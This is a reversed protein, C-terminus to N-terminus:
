QQSQSTCLYKRFLVLDEELSLIAKIRQCKRKLKKTKLPTQHSRDTLIIRALSSHLVKVFPLPVLLSDVYSFVYNGRDEIANQFHFFLLYAAPARATAFGSRSGLIRQERSFTSLARIAGIMATSSSTSQQKSFGLFNCFSVSVREDCSQQQLKQRTKLIALDQMILLM